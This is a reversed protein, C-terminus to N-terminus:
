LRIATPYVLDCYGAVSLRRFLDKCFSEVLAPSEARGGGEHFCQRVTRADNIREAVAAQREDLEVSMGMAQPQLRVTKNGTVTGIWGVRRVPVLDMFRSDDLDVKYRAPDRDRRCAYFSHTAIRGDLLEIAAWAKREPLNSLLARLRADMPRYALDLLFRDLWGQLVLGASDLLDVCDGVSYPRDVRHLFLDVLGADFGLDDPSVPNRRLPHDPGLAALAMKVVALDERSQTLGLVRFLEQLMYIGARGYKGYLMLFVVGDRELVDALAKLGIVPDPLHHLVGVCEIFDFTRGLRVVEELRCRDLVLNRLDHKSKLHREHALSSESIDIGVVEAKPYHYAYRAAVNPGCGAVLIRLDNRPPRDPWYARGMFYPDSFDRTGGVDEVPKPYVWREYQARVPDNGDYTM